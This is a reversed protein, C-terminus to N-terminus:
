KKCIEELKSFKPDFDDLFTFDMANDPFTFSDMSEIRELEGEYAYTRPKYTSIEDEGNMGQLRQSLMEGIKEVFVNDHRNKISGSRVYKSNQAWSPNQGTRKSASRLLGAGDKVGLDMNGNGNVLLVAPSAQSLVSGGEENYQILTQNGEDSGPIKHLNKGGAGCLFCMLLCLALLFLLVAGIIAGIAGPGMNHSAPDLKECSAGDPCSCVRLNLVQASSSGQRDYIDLPITYNGKPLSKRMLIEVSKDSNQNVDWVEKVSRSHDAPIEFKFPGSYPDLDKDTAEVIIPMKSDKECRQLFPAVLQPTNDNVDSLYLLVTGTGTAPPVGDDVAYVVVKYLTQNVYPSERDLEQTTTLLGTNKM